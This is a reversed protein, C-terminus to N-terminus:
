GKQMVYLHQVWNWKSHKPILEKPTCTKGAFSFEYTMINNQETIVVYLHMSLLLDKGCVTRRQVVVIEYVKSLWFKAQTDDKKQWSLKEIILKHLWKFWYLIPVSLVNLLLFLFNFNQWYIFHYCIGIEAFSDVFFINEKQFISTRLQVNAICIGRWHVPLLWFKLIYM